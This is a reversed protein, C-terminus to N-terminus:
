ELMTEITTTKDIAVQTIGVTMTTDMSWITLNEIVTYEIGTMEETTDTTETIVIDLYSIVEEIDEIMMLIVMVTLSFSIITFIVVIIMTDMTTDMMMITHMIIIILTKIDNIM